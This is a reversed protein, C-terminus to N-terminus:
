TAQAVRVARRGRMARLLPKEIRSSVVLGGGVAAASLIMFVLVRPANHAGSVRLVAQWVMGILVFQFLYISYSAGGLASMWRPFLTRGAAAPSVELAALGAVLVAAAAGFVLRAATAFPDLLGCDALVLALVFLVFGSIAVNRPASVQRRHLLEASAMGMFFELGYISTAQPPLVSALSVGLMRALICCLWAALVAQGARKSTILLAFLGYFFVECQLTWAIGLIPAHRAPLLSVSVLLDSLAPVKFSGAFDMLITLSLAVWYLPLVRTFRRGAYHGLRDPHGIDSRHTHLIIFGSIVFFLDVGAVGPEFLRALGPATLSKDVHRAAHCAVVAVAAVGRLVEINSFRM